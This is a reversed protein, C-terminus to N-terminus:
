NNDIIYFRDDLIFELIPKVDKWLLKGNGCGVKPLFINTFKYDNVLGLLQICSKEILKLDAKEFWNHKVPFSFLNYDKFYFVDNGFKTIKFGLEKPLKPFKNKAELAIGRGMVCEGTGNKVFGNTTICIPYKKHFRWIDIKDDSIIM